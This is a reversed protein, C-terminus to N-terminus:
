FWHFVKHAILISLLNIIIFGSAHIILVCFAGIMKMFSEGIGKYQEDTYNM